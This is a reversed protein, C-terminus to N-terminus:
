RFVVWDTAPEAPEWGLLRLVKLNLACVTKRPPQAGQVTEGRLLRLVVEGTQRGIDRFDPYCGVAAGARVFGESFGILPRRHKLSLLVLPEITTRNYLTGDPSCWVWDSKGELAVFAELLKDAQRCEATELAFGFQRAAQRMETLADGRTPNYIWGLRRKTPFLRRLRELVVAPPIELVVCAPPNELRTAQQRIAGMVMTGVLVGDFGADLVRQLAPTGVAIVIRPKSDGDWAETVPVKRALVEEIGAIAEQYAATRASTLVSVEAAHGSGLWPWPAMWPATWVLWACRTTSARKM